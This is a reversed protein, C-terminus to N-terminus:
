MAVSTAYQGGSQANFPGARDFGLKEYVTRQRERDERLRESHKASFRCDAEISLDVICRWREENDEERAHADDEVKKLSEFSELIAKKQAAQEEADSGDDSWDLSEDNKSGSGGSGGGLGAFRRGGTGAAAAAGAGGATTPAGAEVDAAAAGAGGWASV